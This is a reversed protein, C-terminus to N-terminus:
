VLMSQYGCPYMMTNGWIPPVVVFVQQDGLVGLMPACTKDYIGYSYVDKELGYMDILEDATIPKEFVLELPSHGMTSDVVKHWGTHKKTSIILIYMNKGNVLDIFKDNHYIEIGYRLKAYRHLKVLFIRNKDSGKYDCVNIIVKGKELPLLEEIIISDCKLQLKSTVLQIRLRRPARSGYVDINGSNIKLENYYNTEDDTCEFTVSVEKERLEEVIRGLNYGLINTLGTDTFEVGEYEIREDSGLLRAKDIKKRIIDCNVGNIDIM